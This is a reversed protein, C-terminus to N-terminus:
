LGLEARDVEDVPYSREIPQRLSSLLANVQFDDAELVFPERLLWREGERELALRTEGHELVEIRSFTERAEFLTEGGGDDQPEPVLWLVLGLLGLILLLVLNTRMRRDM